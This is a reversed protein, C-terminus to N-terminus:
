VNVFIAILYLHKQAAAQQGDFVQKNLEFWTLDLREKHYKPLLFSFTQKTFIM